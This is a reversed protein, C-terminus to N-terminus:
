GTTSRSGRTSSRTSRASAARAHAHQDPGLAAPGRPRLARGRVRRDARHRGAHAQAHDARDDDHPPRADDGDALGVPAVFRLALPSTQYVDGLRAHREAIAFIREIAEIHFGREDVPVGIEASYAPVHNARGINFVRYSKNVYEDDALANLTMRIMRPVARPFLGAAVNLVRGIGPILALM